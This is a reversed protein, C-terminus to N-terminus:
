AQATNEKVSNSIAERKSVLWKSFQTDSKKLKDILAEIVSDETFKRGNNELNLYHVYDKLTTEADRSITIKKSVPEYCKVDIFSKVKRKQKVSPGASAGDIESKTTM